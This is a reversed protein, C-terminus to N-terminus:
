TKEKEDIITELCHKSGDELTFEITLKSIAADFDTPFLFVTEIPCEENNV